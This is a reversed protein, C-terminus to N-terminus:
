ATGARSRELGTTGTRNCDRWRDDPADLPDRRLSERNRLSLSFRVDSPTDGPQSDSEFTLRPWAQVKLQQRQIYVTYASVFLALLGVTGSVILEMRLGLRRSRRRSAVAHRQGEEMARFRPQNSTAALGTLRPALAGLLNFKVYHRM